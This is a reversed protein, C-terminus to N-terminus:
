RAGGPKMRVSSLPRAGYLAEHLDMVAEATRPGFGLMYLGEMRVVGRDKAAPTTRMAPLDFLSAEDVVPGGSTRMMLVVDPAATVVAEDTLQRYGSFGTIANEGGAMRIIGDAATGSGSAMIKGGQLSLVFMVRKKKAIAESAKEAAALDRDVKDALAEAKDEDGLAKGVLMIKELIGARDYRDPITVFPVSAAKLVSVAEPPGSGALAIILDPDVALVGEPSLARMYGVDPLGTAAEPYVSTTDRAVLRDADGLAYAIETVSGGISVVRSAKQGSDAFAGGACFLPSGVALLAGLIRIARRPAKKGLHM